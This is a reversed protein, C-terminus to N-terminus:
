SLALEPDRAREHATSIDLVWRADAPMPMAPTPIPEIHTDSILVRKITKLIISVDLAFSFYKVYFLDYHLREIADRVTNTQRFRVQAWGTVGPKVLHRLHNSPVAKELVRVEKIWEPRPGVFSMDGKLVNWLQPLEDLRFRRLIDGLRTVHCDLAAAALLPGKAEAGSTMTRFKWLIFPKGMFGARLQKFLVPRGDCLAILAATAALVPAAAVLLVAAGLADIARKLKAYLGHRKPLIFELAWSPNAAYYPSVKGFISEYFDELTVVPVGRFMAALLVERAAQWNRDVWAADAVVIDVGPWQWPGVSLGTDHAHHPMGMEIARLQEPDGLFVFRQDLIDFKLLWLWARRWLFILAHSLAVAVILHTKPTMEAQNGVIYFYTMGLLMCAGASILLNRVLTVDNRVLRMEYLGVTYAAAIWAFFLPMYALATMWSLAKPERLFLTTALSLYFILFDGMPPFLFRWFGPLGVRNM